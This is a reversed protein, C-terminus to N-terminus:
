QVAITVPMSQQGAGTLTVPVQSGPAVGTPVTANVQYLGVFGPTLGSFLVDATIGGVTVSIPEITKSIQTLPAATGTPVAPNVEGLGTCYIVIPQGAKVPNAADAIPQNGNADVGVIIGQGQGSANVTFIGPAAAALIVSQPVSISSSSSVVVQQPTNVAVGYPVIANVQGNNAFLLPASKGALLLSSGALNLPLPVSSATGQSQALNSGFLTILSGPALPAQAAFSAANVIAGSGIVPPQTYTQFAGKIQVQGQLKEAPIQATATVTVQSANHAPTWTGAWTGNKLSILGLAPDGNSFSVTVNGTTMPNACDDIVSVAVQGPFGAPISFGDELLTFVPVLTTPTCTGSAAPRAEAAPTNSNAPLLVLVIAVNRTSGDSFSMTLSGRYVGAALGSTQPQIVVNIPQAQTVTASQPLSTFFGQGNSTIQGTHFIVPNNNTNQVQVTQSGPLGGGAVASFILGTPEVLPGINSGPPLVNLIISVSQPSNDAGPSTVQLSGYYIGANLGSPDVGVRVQPVISSSADSEGSLPFASLWPGGSLTGGTINFIMQGVGTNLISFYQPPAPGGGQVAFFTLGTQPILITQLVASVTMTVPVVVSQAPNASSIAVTGSYTGPALSSPNASISVATAGFANITGSSPSASLWSGGSTASAKVSFSLSGGGINSVSISQTASAAKQVFAFTLAAPKVNLSPQGAATTTLTVNITQTFPTADPANITITGQNSGAPLASPDVTIGLSAPMAGDSSSLKLWNGSSTASATFPSGNISGAINVSQNVPPSGAPATFALTTPNVQFSPLNVLVERVRNYVFDTTLVNGASDVFVDGPGGIAANTALGGDNFGTATLSGAFTSIIGDPTVKRIVLNFGDAIYMNGAADFAVAEPNFLAAATAPGGDGSYGGVGNGAVTTITSTALNISRIRNNQSDAFYISGNHFRVGLPDNMLANQANGGDGSFGATGNGALNVVNGSSSVMRIRNEFSESVILDGASDFDLGSLGIFNAKSAPGGDGTDGCVGTGAFTSIVGNTTIFRIVCNVEDTFYLSGNPALALYNPYALSASTAPGGDGSYGEMGNGAYVSITGGPTVRRIREVGPESFFINGSNDEVVSIPLYLTASTAPGGDGSFRFLGNGAVTNIIGNTGIKRIRGNYEDAVLINGASDVAMAPYVGLLFHAALASGGDGDFGSQGSGGAITQINGQANVELIGFSLRDAIYLTGAANMAIAVPILVASTAVVGGGLLHGGGAVTTITGNVAIMRVRFNGEDVFYLDGATDLALRTPGNLQAKTAAGGDGSFGQQGTGAITTIVGSPDVKRIRNNATDAIYLNGASDVALGYPENLQASLAPGNDGAYGGIGIGAIRNIIGDPTVKRVDGGFEGIYVDGAADLAVSIPNLVGANVALGGNGSVFSFGNGAVVNITGDTGVRMVDLNGDDAIYYNGSGDVALDLGFTESLPANLAPGGNDPFLWDTGAVTTIVGQSFAATAFGFLAAVSLAQRFVWARRKVKPRGANKGRQM